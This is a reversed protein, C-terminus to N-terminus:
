IGRVQAGVVLGANNIATAGSNVGGVLTGLGMMGDAETWLFAHSADTATGASGVVQGADNIDNALSTGGGLTGLDTPSWTGQAYAAPTFSLAVVLFGVSRRLSGTLPLM